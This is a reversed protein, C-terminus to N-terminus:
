SGQVGVGRERNEWDMSKSCLNGGVLLCVSLTRGLRRGRGEGM